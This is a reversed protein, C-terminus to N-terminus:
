ELSVVFLFFVTLLLAFILGILSFAKIKEWKNTERSTIMRKEERMASDHFATSARMVFPTYEEDAQEEDINRLNLESHAYPVLYRRLGFGVDTFWESLPDDEEKRVQLRVIWFPQYDHGPFTPAMDWGMYALVPLAILSALGAYTGIAPNVEFGVVISFFLALAAIGAGAILGGKRLTAYDPVFRSNIPLNAALESFPLRYSYIGRDEDFIHVIELKSRREPQEQVLQEEEARKREKADQKAADEADKLRQKAEEFSREAEEAVLQAESVNDIAM